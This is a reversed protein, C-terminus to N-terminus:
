RRGPAAGAWTGLSEPSAQLGGGGCEGRLQEVQACAEDREQGALDLGRVARFLRQRTERHDRYLLLSGVSAVAAAVGLMIVLTQMKGEKAFAGRGGSCGRDRGLGRVPTQRVVERRRRRHSAPGAVRLRRESPFPRM